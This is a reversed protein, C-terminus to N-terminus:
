QVTFFFVPSEQQGTHLFVYLVLGLDIYVTFWLVVCKHIDSVSEELDASLLWGCNRRNTPQNPNLPVKLVSYTM